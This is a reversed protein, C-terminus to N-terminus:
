DRGVFEDMSNTIGLFSGLGDMAWVPLVLRAVWTMYVFKPLIVYNKNELIGCVIEDAVDEQKLLPLFWWASKVGSFMGTDVYFPCVCTTHCGSLGKKKFELRLGEDFGFAGFKSACYDSLGNVAAIGGASAITVVHGHNTEVMEPAFARTTWFHAETNIKLTLASKAENFEPDLISKGSVIGANNILIDVKGVDAKVAAATKYIDERSGLDVRYTHCTGGLTKIEKAVATLGEQNLDWLVLKGGFKALRHAVLRGIGSAAGTVLIIEGKVSKRWFRNWLARLLQYGFISVLLKLTNSFRGDHNM